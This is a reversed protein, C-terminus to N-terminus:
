GAPSKRDARALHLPEQVHWISVEDEAAEQGDENVIKAIMNPYLKGVSGMFKAWEDPLQTHTM